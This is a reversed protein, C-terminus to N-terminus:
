NIIKQCIQTFVPLRNKSPCETKESYHLYNCKEGYRCYGHDFFNHCMRTRTALRKEQEGHAFVCKEGFECYGLKWNKCLETKYRNAIKKLPSDQNM